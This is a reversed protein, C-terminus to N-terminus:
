GLSCDLPRGRLTALHLSTLSWCVYMCVYMSYLCVSLCVCYISVKKVHFRLHGKGVAVAGFFVGFSEASGIRVSCPSKIKCLRVPINADAIANTYIHVSYMSIHTHSHSHTQTFLVLYEQITTLHHSRLTQIKRVELRAAAYDSQKM